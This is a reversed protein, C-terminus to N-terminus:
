FNLHMALQLVRPGGLTQQILGLTASPARVTVGKIVNGTKSVSYLSTSASPVDFDPHNFINFAEARFEVNRNEGLRTRKTLAMDFRSQFPGRFTNRGNSSFVSEYTDCVQAGNVTACGPVGFTGPQVTPIYLKGADFLPKTVDVGHTGQLTVQPITVGPTFGLLPDSINVNTSNYLGSVAGSFDYLNYPQGSQLTTFGSLGWGNVVSALAGKQSLSPLQYMYSVTFVHTRDFTSTAYSDQPNLPNNGNFFLGLNSQVDLAHSWTYSATLQLDKSLSKRVGAQLANYNSFGSARYLVSNSSYGLYPVRLDTNGGELTAISEAPVINFGYSSTQGNIPNQATAIGAQNFPVPLVQNNGHNGV